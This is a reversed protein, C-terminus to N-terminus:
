DPQVAFAGEAPHPEAMLGNPTFRVRCTLRWGPAADGLLERRVVVEVVRRGDDRAEARAVAPGVLDRLGPVEQADDVALVVVDRDAGSPDPRRAVITGTLRTLNPAASVV